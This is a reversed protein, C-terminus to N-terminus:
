SVTDLQVPWRPAQNAGRVVELQTMMRVFTAALEPDFQTGENREIEGIAAESDIAPQYSRGATMAEYADCVALIRAGIPIAEGALGDPYGEGDWREHHSRVIPLMADVKTPALIREGLGPHSEMEAREDADLTGGKLLIEDHVGVKGVDHLLGALSVMQVDEDALDLVQALATALESVNLSHERTYEDRADVAEALKQITARITRLRAQLAARETDPAVEAEGYVVVPESEVARATTLAQEAAELLESADAAHAPYEAIGAAIDLPRDAVLAERLLRLWTRRAIVAAEPAPTGPLMVVFEYASLAFVEGPPPSEEALITAVKALAAEGASHGIVANFRDEDAVDYATVSIPTGEHQATTLRRRLTTDLWTRNLMGTAPDVSLKRLNDAQELSVVVSRAALTVALLTIAAAVPTGARSPGVEFALLGLVPLAAVVVIPYVRRFLPGEPRLSPLPELPVALSPDTLRYAIAVTLLAMVVGLLSGFRVMGVGGPGIQDAYWLPWTSLVLAFSVATAALLREWGSWHRARWGILVSLTVALLLIGLIPYGAALAATQWGQEAASFMPLTWLLYILPFAVLAGAVFDLVTRVRDAVRQEVARGMTVAVSLFVLCVAFYLLLVPSTPPPGLPDVAASYWTWYSEAVLTIVLALFLQAWFRHEGTRLTFFALVLAGLACVAMPALYLTLDSVVNAAPGVAGSAAFAVVGVAVIAFWSWSLGRVLRPHEILRTM